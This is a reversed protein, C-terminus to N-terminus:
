KGNQDKSFCKKLVSIEEESYIENSIYYNENSLISYISNIHQRCIKKGNKDIDKTQNLVIYKGRKNNEFYDVNKSENIFQSWEKKGWVIVVYTEENKIKKLLEEKSISSGFWNNKNINKKYNHDKYEVSQYGSINAFAIENSKIKNEGGCKAKDIVNINWWKWTTYFCSNYDETYSEFFKVNKLDDEYEKFNKNLDFNDNKYKKSFYKKYLWDDYEDDYESYSPNKALFIVKAKSIDGFFAHPMVEYHYFWKGKNRDNSNDVMKDYEDLGKKDKEYYYIRKDENKKDSM